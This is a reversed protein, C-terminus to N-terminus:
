GAIQIKRADSDQQIAGDQEPTEHQPIPFKFSLKTGKNSEINMQGGFQRVRERM